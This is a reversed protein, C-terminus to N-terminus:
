SGNFSGDTTSDWGAIRSTLGDVGQHRLMPSRLAGIRHAPTRTPLFSVGHAANCRTGGFRAGSSAVMRGFGSSTGIARWSTLLDVLAVRRTFPVPLPHRCACKPVHGDAYKWNNPLNM